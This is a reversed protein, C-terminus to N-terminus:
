NTNQSSTKNKFYDSTFFSKFEDLKYIDWNWTFWYKDNKYDLLFCNEESNNDRIKECWYYKIWWYLFFLFWYFLFLTLFIYFNKKTLKKKHILLVAVLWLSLLYPTLIFMITKTDLKYWWFFNNLFFILFFILILILYWIFKNNKYNAFSFLLNLFFVIISTLFFFIFSIWFIILFDNISHSFSFFMLNWLKINTNFWWILKLIQYLVWVFYISFTLIALENKNSFIDILLNKSSDEKKVGQNIFINLKDFM